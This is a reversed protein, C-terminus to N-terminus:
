NPMSIGLLETCLARIRARPGAFCWTHCSDQTQFLTDATAAVSHHEMEGFGGAGGDDNYFQLAIDRRRPDWFPYDAFRVCAGVAGAAALAPVDRVILTAQDGTPERLYGMRGSVDAARLGLKHKARGTVPFVVHSATARCHHAVGTQFYDVLAATGRLPVLVNGGPPVQMLQWLGYCAGPRDPATIRLLTRLTYGVYGIDKCECPPDCLGVHRWIEFTFPRGSVLNDIQGRATMSLTTADATELQYDGPDIAAPVSYYEHSPHDPTKFHLELEPALWCRDGGVNWQGSRVLEEAQAAVRLAPHSWLLNEACGAPFIGLIRAGRLAVLVKGGSAALVHPQMGAAAVIQQLHEPSTHMM